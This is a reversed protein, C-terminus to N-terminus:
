GTAYRGLKELMANGEVESLVGKKMLAILLEHLVLDPNKTSNAVVAAAETEEPPELQPLSRWTLETFWKQFIHLQHPTESIFTVGMGMGAQSFSVKADAEFTVEDKTLRIQIVTGVAYPNLTDVYCGGLSLDSTRASLKANSQPEFAEVSATFPFRLYRRRESQHQKTRSAESASDRNRAEDDSM